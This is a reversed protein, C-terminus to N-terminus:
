RLLALAAPRPPLARWSAQDAFTIACLGATRLEIAAEAGNFHQAFESLGPNHGIMLVTELEDPCHKLVGLLAEPDGPYLAPEIRLDALLDLKVAVIRGTETARVAPSALVADCRLGAKAICRAADLAEARGRPSL